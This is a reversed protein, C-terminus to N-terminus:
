CRSQKRKIAGGAEETALFEGELPEGWYDVPCGFRDEFSLDGDTWRNGERRLLFGDSTRFRKYRFRWEQPKEKEPHM